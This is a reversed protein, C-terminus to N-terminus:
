VLLPVEYEFNATTTLAGPPFLKITVLITFQHEVAFRALSDLLLRIIGIFSNAVTSRRWLCPCPARTFSLLPPM